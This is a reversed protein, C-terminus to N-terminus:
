NVIYLLNKVYQSIVYQQFLYPHQREISFLIPLDMDVCRSVYSLTKKLYATPPPPFDYFSFQEPQIALSPHDWKLLPIYTQQSNYCLHGFVSALFQSSGVGLIKKLTIGLKKCTQSNIQVEVRTVCDYFLYDPHLDWKKKSELDAKKDYVRIFHRSNASKDGIYKTEVKDNNTFTTIKSTTTTYSNLVDDTSAALDLAIDCRSISATPINSFHYLLPTLYHPFHFFAGYFSVRLPSVDSMISSGTYYVIEIVPVGSFLLLLIKKDKTFISTALLDINKIIINRHPSNESLGEFYSILSSCLFIDKYNIRLYDLGFKLIQPQILPTKETQTAM